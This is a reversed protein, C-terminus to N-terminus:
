ALQEEIWLGGQRVLSMRKAIRFDLLTRSQHNSVTRSYNICKTQIDGLKRELM